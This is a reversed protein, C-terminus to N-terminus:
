KTYFDILKELVEIPMGKKMAKEALLVYPGSNPDTIVKQTEEDIDKMDNIVITRGLLSDITVNFYDAVKQLTEVKPSSTEWKYIAKEGLALEKGLIELKIGNIECLKKINDVLAM